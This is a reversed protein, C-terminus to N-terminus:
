GGGGADGAAYLRTGPGFTVQGHSDGGGGGGGVSANGDLFSTALPGGGCVWPAALDLRSSITSSTPELLSSSGGTVSATIGSSSTVSSSLLERHQRWGSTSSSTASCSSSGSVFAVEELDGRRGPGVTSAAAPWGGFGGGFDGALHRDGEEERRGRRRQRSAGGSARHQDWAGAASYGHYDLPVGGEGLSNHQGFSGESREHGFSDLEADGEEDQVESYARSSTSPHLHGSGHRHGRGPASGYASERGWRQPTWLPVEAAWGGPAARPSRLEPCTRAASAAAAAAASRQRRLAKGSSGPRRRRGEM